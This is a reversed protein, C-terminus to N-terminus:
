IYLKYKLVYILVYKEQDSHLTSLSTKQHKQYEQRCTEATLNDLPIDFHNRIRWQLAEVNKSMRDVEKNTKTMNTELQNNEISLQRFCYLMIM